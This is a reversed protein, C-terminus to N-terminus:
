SVRGDVAIEYVPTEETVRVVIDTAGSKVMGGAFDKAWSIAFDKSECTLTMDGVSCKAYIRYRM